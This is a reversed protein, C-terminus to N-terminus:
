SLKITGKFVFEAPGELFINSYQGGLAHFRIVLDGGRASIPTEIDGQLHTRAAMALAVATVGTGCALTEDEVGREFTRVFNGDGEVSAFNVNIGEKQYADGNRILAGEHAVNLKDLNTVFKVYHPSGTNLVYDDGVHDIRDVDQMKLSVWNGSENISAQHLGDVAMFNTSNDIIRLKRAFAVICRGGNGCMSGLNGDANYYVMEFDSSESSNLLMFGDAGIGFKRNCLRAIVHSNTEPFQLDRNDIIIFDNGAGQYKYFNVLSM